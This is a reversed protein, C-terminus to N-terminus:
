HQPGLGLSILSLANIKGTEELKQDAQFRRMAEQTDADWVGTPETKLYGKTALAQQIERYRDPTPALQSRQVPAGHVPKAGKKGKVAHVPTKGHSAGHTATHTVVHSKSGPKAKPAVKGAAKKPPAKTAGTVALPLILALLFRSSRNM